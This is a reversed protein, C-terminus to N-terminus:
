NSILKEIYKSQISSQSEDQSTLRISFHISKSSPTHTSNSYGDGLPWQYYDLLVTNTADNLIDIGHRYGAGLKTYNFPLVNAEFETQGIAMLYLGEFTKLSLWRVDSKNGMEQPRVAPINFESATSKYLGINLGQKRDQYSELPGRGYWQVTGFVAPMEFIWGIRPPMNKLQDLQDLKMELVVDASPYFRYTLEIPIPIYAPITAKVTYSIYNPHNTELTHSLITLQDGLTKWINIEKSHNLYIDNDTPARYFHPKIPTVLLEKNKCIWSSILGKNKDIKISYLNNSVHISNNEETSKLKQFASQNISKGATRPLIFQQLGVIMFRYMGNNLSKKNITILITYESGPNRTFSNYDVQVVKKEGPAIITNEFKGEKIKDGNEIVSWFYNFVDGHNELHDNRIEFLGKTLDISRVTFPSFLNNAIKLAAKPTKNSTMLGNVCRFSDSNTESFNGGYGFYFKGKNTKMFFTQDAWDEIFGGAINANNKIQDWFTTLGGLGNGQNSSMRYYLVPKSLDSINDESNVLALDGFSKMNSQVSVPRKSDRSKLWQYAQKVNDGLGCNYGLSWTLVNSYNKNREFMNKVRQLYIKSVSTDTSLDKNISLLSSTNLNAEDMLYLGYQNAISYWMPDQPYHSNRVANINNLKMLDADNAMWEKDVVYGTIPHFEHRVVGKIKLLKHNVLLSKSKYQINNFGILYVTAEQTEGQANKLQIFLHYSDPHEDSWIEVDNIQAVINKKIESQQSIDIPITKNFVEKTTDKFLQIQLQYDSYNEGANNKLQVDLDLIGKNGKVDTKAYFDKIRLKPRALLYSNRYIGTMSWMNHSEFYSADSWRFIILSIMNNEDKLFPSINFESVARSDENYGALQGNVYVFYASSIGEFVAFVDRSKWQNSIDLPRQLVLVTNSDLPVQPYNSEFPLGYYKFIPKGIGSLEICSPFSKELWNINIPSKEIDGPVYEPGSFYQYRWFGNLSRHYASSQFSQSQAKGTTEFPKFDSRPAERGYEMITPDKWYNPLTCPNKPKSEVIKEISQKPADQKCNSTLLCMVGLLYIFHNVKKEM